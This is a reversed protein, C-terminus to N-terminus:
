SEEKKPPPPPPPKAGVKVYNSPFFGNSEPRKIAHGYWWGNEYAHQVLIKEGKEFSL